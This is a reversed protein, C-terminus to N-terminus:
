HAKEQESACDICTDTFPISELRSESIPNGCEHCTFFQGSELRQLANNILQIEKKAAEGLSNLVEDNETETAQETWNSSLEEHQLEHKIADEKKLLSSKMESLRAKFKETDPM